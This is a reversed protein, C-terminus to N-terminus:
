ADHLNIRETILRLIHVLCNRKGASQLKRTGANNVISTVADFFFAPYGGAEM